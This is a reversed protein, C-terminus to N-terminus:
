FLWYSDNQTVSCGPSQLEEQMPEEEEFCLSVDHIPWDWYGLKDHSSAPDAWYDAAVDITSMAASAARAEDWYSIMTDLDITPAAAHHHPPSPTMTAVPRTTTTTTKSQSTSSKVPYHSHSPDNWYEDQNNSDNRWYANVDMGTPAAHHKLPRHHHCSLKKQPQNNGLLLSVLAAHEDTPPMDWYSSDSSSDVVTENEKARLREAAEQILKSEIYHISFFCEFLSSENENQVDDKDSNKNEFAAWDWYDAADAPPTSTPAQQLLQHEKEQFSQQQVLLLTTQVLKMPEQVALQLSASADDEISFSIKRNPPM